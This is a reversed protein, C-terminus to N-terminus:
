DLAPTSELMSSFWSRSLGPPAVFSLDYGFRFYIGALNLRQAVRVFEDREFDSWLEYQARVGPPRGKKDTSQRGSGLNEPSFVKGLYEPDATARGQAITAFVHAFYEPTSQLPELMIRQVDPFERLEYAWVDNQLGQRFVHLSARARPESFDIRYRRELERCETAHEDLFQEIRPALTELHHTITANIASETRGIPHRILDLLLVRRGRFVDPEAQVAQQLHVLTVGHVNGVVTYPPDSPMLDLEDFVYSPLRDHNRSTVSIDGMEPLARLLALKPSNWVSFGHAALARGARRAVFAPDRHMPYFRFCEIPNDIGVTACVADHLNLSGALWISGSHGWSTVLFHDVDRRGAVSARDDGFPYLRRRLEIM